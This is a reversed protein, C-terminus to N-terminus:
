TPWDPIRESYRVGADIRHEPLEPLRGGYVETTLWTRELELDGQPVDRWWVKAAANWRYGRARLLDKTEFPSRVAWLRVDSRLASERLHTIVTRGGRLPQALLHLGAYCDEVARHGDFYCGHELLLYRLGSGEFGADRWAVDRISCAWPREALWPFRREAFPRDFSANHAVVLKAELLERVREDPIRKGAVDADTIGTLATVEPPIPRGPDEYASLEDITGLVGTDDYAFRVVGIEIIADAAASLGTTELDLYAGLRAGHPLEDLRLRPPRPVPRLVRYAGSAELERAMAELDPRAPAPAHRM